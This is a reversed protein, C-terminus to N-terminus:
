WMSIAQLLPELVPHSFSLKIGNSDWSNKEPVVKLIVLSDARRHNAWLRHEWQSRQGQSFTFPHHFFKSSLGLQIPSYMKSPPVILLWVTNHMELDLIWGQLSRDQDGTASVMTFFMTPMESTIEFGSFHKACLM